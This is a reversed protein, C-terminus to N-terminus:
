GGGEGHLDLQLRNPGGAIVDMRLGSKSNYIEPLREVMPRRTRDSQGEGPAAQVGSSSYVRVRYAGPSLGRDRAIAFTGRRIIAGATLGSGSNALPELFIAGDDIPRGDFSVVGSIAQRNWPDSAGCGETISLLVVMGLVSLRIRHQHQTKRCPPKQLMRMGM